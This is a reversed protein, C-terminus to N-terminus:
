GLYSEQRAWMRSRNEPTDDRYGLLHLIGHVTLRKVEENYSVHNERAQRKAMQLNVYVEGLYSDEEPGRLDFALVDTSGRHGKFRRNLPKIDRDRCYTIDLSRAPAAEGKLVNKVLSAMARTNIVFRKDTVSIAMKL